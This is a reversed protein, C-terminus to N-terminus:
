RSDLNVPLLDLTDRGANFSVIRTFWNGGNKVYEGTFWFTADDAPDVCMAFYDGFRDAGLSGTGPMFEYENFTMMGPPDSSFRGTYRLSPNKAYGSVAYGLGIDGNGDIGIAGMFRHIGDDSGVTGEQYLYWDDPATRRFEMWRVGAVDQGNVDVMFCMVFAEHDGFNRYQVRNSIIWEAGDIGQNNPQPVCSFGGTNELQCGDTDFAATPIKLIEVNSSNVDDWNISIKHIQIEDTTTTGWDDDNIKIALGPSGVPPRTLGDWDM